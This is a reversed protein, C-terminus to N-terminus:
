QLVAIIQIERLYYSQKNKNELFIKNAISIVAITKAIYELKRTEDKKEIERKWSPFIERKWRKIDEINNIEKKDYYKRIYEMQMIINDEVKKSFYNKNSKKLEFILDNLDFEKLEKEVNNKSFFNYIIKAWNDMKEGKKKGGKEKILIENKEIKDFFNKDIELTILSKAVSKFSIMYNLKLDKIIKKRSDDDTDKDITEIDSKLSNMYKQVLKKINNIDYNADILNTAIIYYENELNFEPKKNFYNKLINALLSKKWFDILGDKSQNELSIVNLIDDKLISEKHKEILKFFGSLKEIEEPQNKIKDAIDFFLNLDYIEANYEILKKLDSSEITVKLEHYKQRISSLMPNDDNENNNSSNSDVKEDIKLENLEEIGEFDM